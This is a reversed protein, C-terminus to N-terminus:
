GSPPRFEVGSVLVMPFAGSYDAKFGYNGSRGSFGSLTDTVTGHRGSPATFSVSSDGVAQRGADILGVVVPLRARMALAAGSSYGVAYGSVQTGGTFDSGDYDFSRTPVHAPACKIAAGITMEASWSPNPNAADGDNGFAVGYYVGRALSAPVSGGIHAFPAGPAPVDDSQHVGAATVTARRPSSDSQVFRSAAISVDSARLIVLGTAVHWSQRTGAVDSLQSGPSTPTTVRLDISAPRTLVFRIVSVTGTPGAFPCTTSASTAAGAHGATVATAVVGATALLRLTRNRAATLM